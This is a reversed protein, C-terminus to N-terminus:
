QKPLETVDKIIPKELTTSNDVKFAKATFEGPLYSFGTKGNGLDITAQIYTIKYEGSAQTKPIVFSIEFTDQGIKKSERADFTDIFPTTNAVPERKLGFSAASVKDADPGAFKVSLRFTDGPKYVPGQAKAPVSCLGFVLCGYLIFKKINKM